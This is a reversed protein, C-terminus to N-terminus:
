LLSTNYYLLIILHLILNEEVVGLLERLLLQDGQLCSDDILPSYGVIGGQEKAEWGEDKLAGDEAAGSEGLGIDSESCDQTEVNSLCLILIIEQLSISSLSLLIILIEDCGEVALVQVSHKICGAESVVWDINAVVGIMM